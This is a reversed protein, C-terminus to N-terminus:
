HSPKQKIRDEQILIERHRDFYIDALIVNDLAEIFEWRSLAICGMESVSNQSLSLPNFVQEYSVQSLDNADPAFSFKM